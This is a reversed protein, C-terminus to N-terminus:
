THVSTTPRTFSTEGRIDRSTFPTGVSLFFRRTISPLYPSSILQRHMKHNQQDDAWLPRRWAKVLHYGKNPTKKHPIVAITHKHPFSASSSSPSSTTLILRRCGTIPSKGPQENLICSQITKNLVSSYVLENAHQKTRVTVAIRKKGSYIKPNNM